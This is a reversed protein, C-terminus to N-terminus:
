KLSPVAVRFRGSACDVCRGSDSAGCATHRKGAPCMYNCDTCRAKGANPQFTHAPCDSCGTKGRSDQFRGSACDSCGSTGATRKFQGKHCAHCQGPSAGGCGAHFQGAACHYDCKTCTTSGRTTIFRGAECDKCATQGRDEHYTGESCADCSHDGSVSKFRGAKCTVCRGPNGGSCGEHQLGGACHYDCSKCGHM